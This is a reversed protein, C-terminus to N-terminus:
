KNWRNLDETCPGIIQDGKNRKARELEDEVTGCYIMNKRYFFVSTIREYDDGIGVIPSNGHIETNDFVILDHQKLQVGIEYNPFIVYGGGFTGRKIYSMAALGESLNGADRHYATRFNRNLTITTFVSDGIIFDPSTVKAIERHERYEDPAVEKYVETVRGTYEEILPWYEPHKENWSCSRCYNFRPYRDFYGIISSEVTDMTRNTKSITGDKLVKHMVKQGSSAARNNTSQIAHGKKLMTYYRATLEKPFAGRIVVALISGDERLIKLSEKGKYIEKADEDKSFNGVFYQDEESKTDFIKKVTITKM